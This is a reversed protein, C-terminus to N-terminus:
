ACPMMVPLHMEVVVVLVAMCELALRPLAPALFDELISHTALEMVVVIPIMLALCCHSDSSM